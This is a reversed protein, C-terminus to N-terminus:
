TRGCTSGTWRCRALDQMGDTISARWDRIHSCLVCLDFPPLLDCEHEPFPCLKAGTDNPNVGALTCITPYWDSIHMFGSYTTNRVDAPLMESYVFASGRVGGQFFDYKAGRLPYNNGNDYSAGNDTTVILITNDWMGNARLAETVNFISEDAFAAMGDYFRRPAYESTNLNRMYWAPVELPNHTNQLALYM